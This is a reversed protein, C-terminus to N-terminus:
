AHDGGSLRRASARRKVEIKQEDTFTGWDRVEELTRGCGKCVTGGVGLTCRGRCPNATPHSRPNQVSM